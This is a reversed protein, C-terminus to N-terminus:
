KEPCFIDRCKERCEQANPTCICSLWCFTGCVVGFTHFKNKEAQAAWKEVDEPFMYQRGSGLVFDIQQAATGSAALRELRELISKLGQKKARAIANQLSARVMDMDLHMETLEKSNAKQDTLFVLKFGKKKAIERFPALEEEAVGPTQEKAAGVVPVSGFLAGGLLSIARTVFGRRSYEVEM